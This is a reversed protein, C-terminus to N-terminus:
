LFSHRKTTTQEVEYRPRAQIFSEKEEDEMREEEDRDASM